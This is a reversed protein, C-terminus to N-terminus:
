FDKDGTSICKNGRLTWRRGGQQSVTARETWSELGPFFSVRARASLRSSNGVYVTVCDITLRIVVRGEKAFINRFIEEREDLYSFNASADSNSVLYFDFM